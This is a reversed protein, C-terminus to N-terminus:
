HVRGVNVNVQLIKDIIVCVITGCWVVMENSLIENVENWLASRDGTIYNHMQLSRETHSGFRGKLFIVGQLIFECGEVEVAVADLLM